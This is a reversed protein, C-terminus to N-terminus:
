FVNKDKGHNDSGFSNDTIVLIFYNCCLAIQKSDHSIKWHNSKTNM